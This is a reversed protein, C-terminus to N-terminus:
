ASPGLSLSGPRQKSRPCSTGPGEREGVLGRSVPVACLRGVTRSLLSLECPQVREGVPSGSPLAPGSARTLVRREGLAEPPLSPVLGQMLLLDRSRGYRPRGRKGLFPRSQLSMVGFVVLCSSLIFGNQSCLPRPVKWRKGTRRATKRPTGRAAAETQLPRERQPSARGAPARGTVTPLDSSPSSLACTGPERPGQAGREPSRSNVTFRSGKTSPPKAARLRVGEM